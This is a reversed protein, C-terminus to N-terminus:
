RFNRFDAHVVCGKPTQTQNPDNNALWQLANALENQLSEVSLAISEGGQAVSSPSRRILVRCAVIFAKCKVIDGDVDYSANDDYAARVEPTTSNGDIAM